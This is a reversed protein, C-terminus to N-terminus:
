KSLRHTIGWIPLPAPLVNADGTPSPEAEAQTSVKAVGNPVTPKTWQAWREARERYLEARSVCAAAGCTDDKTAPM